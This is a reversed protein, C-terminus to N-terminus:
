TSPNKLYKKTRWLRGKGRNLNRFNSSLSHCNPCILRVNDERNDDANGNQHDVELPIKNTTLNRKNWGCICCKEGFKEILFHKIHKSLCGTTVGRTGNELGARWLKIYKQYNERAQCFNSCYKYQSKELSNGCVPCSKM